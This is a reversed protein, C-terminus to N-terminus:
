HLFLSFGMSLIWVYALTKPLMLAGVAPKKKSLMVVPIYFAFSLFIAVPMFQFSDGAALSTSLFLGIVLAGLIAFPLNRLVAFLESPDDDTWGNQKPLCLLIRAVALVLIIFSTAGFLEKGYHIAWIGYLLVYFLTMSISTIFKGIGLSRKLKPTEGFLYVRIRPVLHFSDGAGLTLAMAGYLIKVTDGRSYLLMMLGAILAFALYLSDFVCEAIEYPRLKKKM